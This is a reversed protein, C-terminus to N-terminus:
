ASVRDNQANAGAPAWGAYVAEAGRLVLRLQHIIREALEARAEPPVDLARAGINFVLTVMAEAVLEPEAIPRRKTKSERQMDQALDEVFRQIEQHLARRFAASSGTSEGSLLRFHNPNRALFEMFTEVSTRITSREPNLRRRARRMLQRLSLGVEDMLALGLEEMDHFHRYFSTPAIGAARAVERLSLGAFGRDASLALAADLIARRTQAKAAARRNM